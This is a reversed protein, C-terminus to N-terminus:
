GGGANCYVVIDGVMRASLARSDTSAQTHHQEDFIEIKVHGKACIVDVDSAM